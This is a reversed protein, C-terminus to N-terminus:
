PADQEFTYAVAGQGFEVVPEGADNETLEFLLGTIPAETAVYGALTEPEDEEELPV